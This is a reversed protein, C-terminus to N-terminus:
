QLFTSSIGLIPFALLSTMWGNQAHENPKKMGLAKFLETGKSEAM